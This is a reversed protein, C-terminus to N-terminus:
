HFEESFSPRLWQPPQDGDLRGLVLASLASTRSGDSLGQGLIVTKSTANVGNAQLETLQSQLAQVTPAKLWTQRVDALLGNVCSIWAVQAGEVVCVYGFASDNLTTVCRKAEEFAHHWWPEVTHLKVEFRSAHQRLSTLDMGALACVGRAIANHWTALPWDSAASGHHEILQRRACGRVAADDNQFEGSPAQRFSHILPGSVWLSMECGPHTEIWHAVSAYRAAAAHRDAPDWAWAGRTDVLVAHRIHRAPVAKKAPRAAWLRSPQLSDPRSGNSFHPELSLASFAGMGPHAIFSLAL